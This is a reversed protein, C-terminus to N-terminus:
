LKWSNQVAHNRVISENYMFDPFQHDLPCRTRVTTLKVRSSVLRVVRPEDLDWPAVKPLSPMAALQNWMFLLLENDFETFKEEAEIKRSVSLVDGHNIEIRQLAVNMRRRLHFNTPQSSAIGKTGDDFLPLLNQPLCEYKRILFNRAVRFNANYCTNAFAMVCKYLGPERHTMISGKFNRPIKVPSVDIGHYYEGGCSEKFPGSLYSKDTNVLFGLANLAMATDNALEKRIVIDDGYVSYIEHGHTGRNRVVAECVAAFIICETPFCLASGMPAFKEPSITNGDPLKVEHSRTLYCAELYDTGCFLEKVLRWSVSDSAASLDITAYKDSVSGIKALRRNHTQDKIKIIKKLFPHRRMYKDTTNWAAQQTYMLSAPEMCITRMSSLNKPVFVVEACRNLGFSHDPPWLEDVDSEGHFNILFLLRDDLKMEQYKEYQSVRGLEAVGGPGHKPLLDGLVFGSFWEQIVEKTKNLITEDLVLNSLRQETAYYDSLAEAQFDFDLLTIRTMFSLFQNLVRFASAHPKGLFVVLYDKIPALFSGVLSNDFTLNHKFCDYSTQETVRLNLLIEKMMQDLIRVDLRKTELSWRRINSESRLTSDPVMDCVIMMNLLIAQSVTESDRKSLRIGERYSPIRRMSSLVDTWFDSKRNQISSM